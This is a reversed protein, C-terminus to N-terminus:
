GGNDLQKKYEAFAKYYAKRATEPVYAADFMKEAWKKATAESISTWDVGDELKPADKYFQNFVGRTAPHWAKSLTLGSGARSM